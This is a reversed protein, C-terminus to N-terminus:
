APERGSVVSSHTWLFEAETRGVAELALLGVRDDQDVNRLPVIRQDVRRPGQELHEAVGDLGQSLSFKPQEVDAHAAGM